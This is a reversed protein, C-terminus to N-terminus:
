SSKETGLSLHITKKKGFLEFELDVGRSRLDDILSGVKAAAQEVGHAADPIPRGLKDEEMPSVKQLITDAVTQSSDGLPVDRSVHCRCTM